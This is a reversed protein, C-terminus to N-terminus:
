QKEGRLYRELVYKVPPEVGAARCDDINSFLADPAGDYTIKGEKMVLLRPFNLVERSYQTIFLIGTKQPLNHLSYLFERRSAPDLMSTSEDLILYDPKMAMVSALALKQMQGGSLLHPPHKRYSVLGFKKLAEGVITVMEERAMGMNELGFAIEREVTAAAIQNEPNQFVIGIKGPSSEEPPLNDIEIKGATPILLGKILLALTSKGCGNPGMLATKEGEALNLDIGDLARGGPYDFKVGRVGIM